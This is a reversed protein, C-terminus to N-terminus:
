MGQSGAKIAVWATPILTLFVKGGREQGLSFLYCGEGWSLQPLSVHQAPAGDCGLTLHSCFSLIAQLSYFVFSNTGSENEKEEEEERGCERGLRTGPCTTPSPRSHSYQQRAYVSSLHALGDLRDGM